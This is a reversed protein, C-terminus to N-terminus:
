LKHYYKFRIFYSYWCLISRNDRLCHKRHATKSLGVNTILSLCKESICLRYCKVSIIHHTYVEHQNFQRFRTLSNLLYTLYETWLHKTRIDVDKIYGLYYSTLLLQNLSLQTFVFIVSATITFPDLSLYSM